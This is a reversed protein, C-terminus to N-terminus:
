CGAQVGISAPRQARPLTVAFETWGNRSEALVLEGGMARTLERAICLGLGTGGVESTHEIRCFREFIRARYEPAIDIGTNGVRITVCGSATKVELRMKGSPINYKIANDVLNCLVQRLMGPDAKVWETGEARVEITIAGSSDAPEFDGAVEAVLECVEVPKATVSLRGADARALLLLNDMIATVRSVQELLEAVAERDQDALNPSHMLEGLGAKIVSVPTKLEHSADASFRRAHHLSVEIRSLTENFARALQGVEDSREAGPLRRDLRDVPLGEVARAMERVPKLTQAVILWGIVGVFGLVLPISLLMARNLAKTEAQLGDLDSAIRLTLGGSSRSFTRVTRGAITGWGEGDSLKGLSKFDASGGRILVDGAPGAIECFLHTSGALAMVEEFKRQTIWSVNGGSRGFEEFFHDARRRLNEDIVGIEARRHATSILLTFSVLLLLALVGCWVAVKTTVKM